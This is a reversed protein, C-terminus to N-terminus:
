AQPFSRRCRETQRCSFPRTMCNEMRVAFPSVQDALKGAADNEHLVVFAIQSRDLRYFGVRQMGGATGIYVDCRIATEQISGVTQFTITDRNERDIRCVPLQCLNAILQGTNMRTIKDDSGVALKQKAGTPVTINHLNVFYVLLAAQQSIRFFIDPYALGLGVLEVDTITEPANIFKKMKM